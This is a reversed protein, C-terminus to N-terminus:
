DPAVEEPVENNIAAPSQAIMVALCVHNQRQFDTISLECQRITELDDADLITVSGYAQVEDLLIQSTKIGDDIAQIKEKHVKIKFQKKKEQVAKDEDINKSERTQQELADADEKEKHAIKDSEEKNTAQQNQTAFTAVEEGFPDNPKIDAHKFGLAETMYRLQAEENTAGTSYSRLVSTDIGRAQLTALHILIASAGADQPGLFQGQIVRRVQILAEEAEVTIDFIFFLKSNGPLTAFRPNKWTKNRDVGTDRVIQCWIDLTAMSDGKETPGVVMLAKESWPTDSLDEYQAEVCSYALGEKREGGAGVVVSSQAQLAQGQSKPQLAAAKSEKALKGFM